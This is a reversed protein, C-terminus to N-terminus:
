DRGSGKLTRISSLAARLDLLLDDVTNRATLIRRPDECGEVKVECLIRSGSASCLVSVGPPSSLNDVNLSRAIAGATKPDEAEVEIEVLCKEEEAM